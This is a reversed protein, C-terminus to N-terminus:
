EIRIYIEDGKIIVNDFNENRIANLIKNKISFVGAKAFILKVMIIADAEFEEILAKIKVDFISDFEFLLNGDKILLKIDKLKEFLTERFEPFLVRDIFNDSPLNIFAIEGEADDICKIFFNLILDKVSKYKNKNICSLNLNKVITKGSLDMGSFDFSSIKLENGISEFIEGASNFNQFQRFLERVVGIEIEFINNEPYNEEVVLFGSDLYEFHADFNQKQIFIDYNKITFKESEIVGKKSSYDVNIKSIDIVHENGWILSIYLCCIVLKLLLRM